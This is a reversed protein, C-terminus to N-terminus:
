ETAERPLKDNAAVKNDKTVSKESMAEKSETEKPTTEKPIISVNRIKSRKPPALIQAPTGQSVVKGGDMVVIRDCVSLLQRNHSAIVCSVEKSMTALVKTLHLDVQQDLASNPEDLLLLKPQKYFARALAIAQRQGGSVQRGLEGVQTELGKEMSPLILGLGSLQLAQSLKHEDVEKEGLLINEYLSGQLLLPSQGVWGVGQRILAVPWIRADLGEYCLQGQSPQYQRAMLALLTSKGSGSPGIVGIKEGKAITLNVSNLAPISQDAYSFSVDKLDINGKIEGKSLVQAQENEQPLQMVQEVSSLAAKTQQYRLLLMSIQNVAAAARGSLMVAAILGGMTLAGAIIQHVGVIVLGVTVIHQGSQISHSVINSYRRSKVQWQSLNFSVQEWRHSIAGQANFQKIESLNSLNDFLQAQKQMSLQSTQEFTHGIKSKMVVSLALIFVMVTVPIWVMVGGLWAILALFFLTFPLDVLTVLTASTFFEKVSDFDQIQRAFSGVSQPKVELKMGLVKSFLIASLKNDIYQGAIDTVKSRSEKLLWEFVLAIGVGVVLVWLTDIAQNPVVRDYVNMTFLPIILALLNVVFSAILLDRYWPKVEKIVNFLWRKSPSRTQESSAEVAKTVVIVTATIKEQIEDLPQTVQEAKSFVAVAGQSQTSGNIIIPREAESQFAICPLQIDSLQRSSLVSAELGMEAIIRLWLDTSTVQDTGPLNNTFKVPHARIDYYDALWSIVADIDETSSSKQDLNVEKSM